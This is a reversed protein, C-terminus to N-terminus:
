IYKYILILQETNCEFVQRHIECKRKFHTFSTIRQGTAPRKQLVPLCFLVLPFINSVRLFHLVGRTHSHKYKCLTAGSMSHAVLCLRPFIQINVVLSYKVHTSVATQLCLKPKRNCQYGETGAGARVHYLTM